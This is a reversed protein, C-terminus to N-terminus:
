VREYFKFGRAVATLSESQPVSAEVEYVNAVMMPMTACLVTYQGFQM